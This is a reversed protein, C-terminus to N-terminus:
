TFINIQAGAKSRNEILVKYHVSMERMYGGFISSYPVMNTATERVTISSMM